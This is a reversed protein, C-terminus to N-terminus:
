SALAALAALFRTMEDQLRRLHRRAEAWQQQRAAGRLDDTAEVIVVADLIAAQGKLRHAAFAVADANRAEVAEDLERVGAPVVQLFQAILRRLLAQNGSIRALARSLDPPEAALPGPPDTPATGIAHQAVIALLTRADLPKAIFGDMGGALCRDRDEKTASATLAIIPIRDHGAGGERARIRRTAEFGDLEPLQLDMLVIDYGGVTAAEIATHGDGVVDCRYGATALIESAVEANIESDEVLLVRRGAGPTGPPPSPPESVRRPRSEDGVVGAILRLLESRWIPKSVYAVIERERLEAATLPRGASGLMLLRTARLDPEAKIQRALELGNMGPMHYDLIVLDVPASAAVERLHALASPGDAAVECQMGAATLEERLIQRNTANDDVALVRVGRLREIEPAWRRPPSAASARLPVAFWFRSGQGPRSEVGLRGGMRDVLQRCIALGLGTGGHRRTTSADVQSFPQFLRRQAEDDLGVGTDIVDIKLEIEDGDLPALDAVVRVEGAPTFKIANSVLNVLVQRLRAPDGRLWRDLDHSWRCSLELGKEEAPLSLIRAVEEILEIPAFDIDELELRGAEIRSFDLIDNIVSLLLRASSRAVDTYRRQRDDLTTGSLLDVMGIVGNLPTRLEHSMNALFQSKSRNATEAAEKARGLALDARMRLKGIAVLEALLEALAVDEDRWSRPRDTNVLTLIGVTSGGTSIPVSIVARVGTKRALEVALGTFLPDDALLDDVRAPQGGLVDFPGLRWAQLPVSQLSSASAVVGPAVWQQTCALSREGEQDQLEFISARTVAFHAGIAALARLIGEGGGDLLWRSVRAILAVRELQRKLEQEAAKRQSVDRSVIQVGAPQGASDHIPVVADEVHVQSGDKRIFTWERTQPETVVAGWAALFAERQDPHVLSEAMGPTTLWQEVPYGFIAEAAHSAFQVRGDVGVLFVADRSGEILRRHREESDILAAQAAAREEGIAIIESALRALSVDDADWTRGQRVTQLAIWASVEGKHRLPVTLASRLRNQEIIRRESDADSPLADVGQIVVVEGRLLPEASWHFSDLPVQQAPWWAEVGAANWQHTCSFHTRGEGVRFMQVRDVGMSEGIIALARSTTNARDDDLFLRSIRQLLASGRAQRLLIQESRRHRSVDTIIAQLRREEGVVIRNLRVEVELLEGTTRRLIWDFTDTGREMLRRHALRGVELLADGGQDPAPTYDAPSSRLMQERDACGHLQVAAPNADLFRTGTEDLLVVASSAGDFIAQQLSRQVRLAAIEERLQAVTARLEQETDAQPSPAPDPM